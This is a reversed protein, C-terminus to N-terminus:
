IVDLKIFFEFSSTMQKGLKRLCETLCQEFFIHNIINTYYV